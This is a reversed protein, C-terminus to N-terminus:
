KDEECGLWISKILSCAELARGAVSILMRREMHLSTGSRERVPADLIRKMYYGNAHKSPTYEVLGWGEPIESLDILGPPTLYWREDGISTGARIHAKKADAKFDSKSTKCEIVVCKGFGHWGVVDPTESVSTRIETAVVRCKAQLWRAAAQVLQTHTM